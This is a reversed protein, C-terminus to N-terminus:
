SCLYTAITVLTVEYDDITDVNIGLLTLMADNVGNKEMVSTFVDHIINHLMTTDSCSNLFAGITHANYVGKKTIGDTHMTSDAIDTSKIAQLKDVSFMLKDIETNWAAVKDEYVNGTYVHAVTVNTDFTSNIANSVYDELHSIDIIRSKNVEKLLNGLNTTNATKVDLNNLNGLGTTNITVIIDGLNDIESDWMVKTLESRPDYLWDKINSLSTESFKPILGNLVLSNNILLLPKTILTKETYSSYTTGTDKAFSDMQTLIRLIKRLEGVEDDIGNDPDITINDITGNNNIDLNCWYNREETEMNLNISALQDATLSGSLVENMMKRLSHVILKSEALTDAVSDAKVTSDPNVDDKCAAEFATFSFDTYKINNNKELDRIVKILNEIDEEIMEVQKAKIEEEEGTIANGDFDKDLEMYKALSGTTTMYDRTRISASYKIILSAFLKDYEEDTKFNGEGDKIFTDLSFQTSNLDKIQKDGKVIKVSEIFRIAEPKDETMGDPIYLVKQSGEGSLKRVEKYFTELLVTSDFVVNEEDETLNLINDVNFSNLSISEEGKFLYKVSALMKRLEGSATYTTSTYIDKWNESDRAFSVVITANDKESESVTTDIITESIIKSQVLIGIEDTEAVTGLTLDSPNNDLERTRSLIENANVQELKINVVTQGPNLPDEEEFIIRLGRIIRRIEGINVIINNEKADDWVVDQIILIGGNGQDKGQDTIKKVLTDRIVVSDLATGLEDDAGNPNDNLNALNNIVFNSDSSVKNMDITYKDGVKEGVVLRGSKVLRVTEVRWEDTSYAKVEDSITLTGDFSKVQKSITDTFLTSKVVEDLEDDKLNCILEFLENSSAETVKNINIRKQGPNEPDDERLLVNSAKIIKRIEGDYHNDETGQWEPRTYNYVNKVVLTKSDDPNGEEDVGLDIIKKSITDSIIVSKLVTAVEDKDEHYIGLDDYGDDMDAVLKLIKNTDSSNLNATSVNGAEDTLLIQSSEIISRIEVKWEDQNYNRVDEKVQIIANDEDAIKVIRESITDLIVVSSLVTIIEDDEEHYNGDEDKGNNLDVIMQLTADTDGSSLVSTDVTRNGEGDTECVLLEVADVIRVIEVRWEPLTYDLVSKTNVIKDDGEEGLKLIQSSITATIIRSELSKNLEEDNLDVIVQLLKNADSSSLKDINVKKIKSGPNEPDDVEETLLKDGAYIVAKLEVKWEDRTWLDIDDDGKPMTIISETGDDKDALKKVQTKITEYIVDSDLVKGIKVEDDGLELIVSLLENSDGNVLKSAMSNGNKDIVLTKASIILHNVETSWLNFYPEDWALTKYDPALTIFSDEENSMDVLKKAITDVLIRSHSINLSEEDTVNTLLDIFQETSYDKLEDIIVNGESDLLIAEAGKILSRIEGDGALTDRWSIPFAESDNVVILNDTKEPLTRIIKALSDTLVNSSLIKSVDDSGETSTTSLNTLNKVLKNTIDEDELDTIDKMLKLLMKMIVNIENNWGPDSEEMNIALYEELQNGEKSYEILNAVLVKIFFKSKLFTDIDSETLTFLKTVSFEEGEETHLLKVFIKLSEVIADLEDTTWDDDSDLTRLQIKLEKFSDLSEIYRIANNMNSKIVENDIINEKIVDFIEDLEEDSLKSIENIKDKYKLAVSVINLIGKLITKGETQWDIEPISFADKYVFMTILANCVPTINNSVLKSDLLYDVFAEGNEDIIKVYDVQVPEEGEETKKLLGDAIGSSYLVKAAMVISSLDDSTIGKLNITGRLDNPIANNVVIDVNDINNAIIKFGFLADFLDNVKEYTFDDLNITKGEELTGNEIYEQLDSVSSVSLANLANVLNSINRIEDSLKVNEFSLKMQNQEGNISTKYEYEQEEITFKIVWNKNEDLSYEFKDFDMGELYEYETKTDNLVLYGDESVKMLPKLLLYPNIKTEVMASKEIYMLGINNITDVLQISALKDFVDDVKEPDLKVLRDLFNSVMKDKDGLLDSPKYETDFICDYLSAIFEGTQSIVTKFDVKKLEKSIDNISVYLQSDEGENSKIFGPLIEVSVPMILGLIELESIEQFVQNIMESDLSDLMEAKFGEDSSMLPEILDSFIVSTGNALTHIEKRVSIKSDNFDIAVLNDFIRNDLEVGGFKIRFLKGAATNRYIAFWQDLQDLQFNAISASDNDLRIVENNITLYATNQRDSEESDQKTALAVFVSADQGISFVGAFPVCFILFIFVANIVGVGGGILRNFISKRKKVGFKDKRAPTVVRFTIGFILRFLTWNLILVIIIFVIRVPMEVIACLLAYTSTDTIAQGEEPTVYLSAIEALANSVTTVTISREESIPIQLNLSSLDIENILFRFIAPFILWCGIIILLTIGFLYLAKIYGRKFGILFCIILFIFFLINLILAIFSPTFIELNM